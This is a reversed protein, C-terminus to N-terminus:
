IHLSESEEPCLALKKFVLESVKERGAPSDRFNLNAFEPGMVIVRDKDFMSDPGLLFDHHAQHLLKQYEETVGASGEDSQESPRARSHLRSMCHEMSPQLWLEYWRKDDLAETFAPPALRMWERWWTEYISMIMPGVAEAQLQMFVHRDTFPTRECIMLDIRGHETIAAEYAERMAIIRTMCVMSQFQYVMGAPDEYFARLVGCEEWKGVPESAVAVALGRRRADAALLEVLTSKGAAIAGEVVLVTFPM